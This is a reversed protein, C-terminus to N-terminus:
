QVLIRCIRLHIDLATPRLSGSVATYVPPRDREALSRYPTIVYDGDKVNAQKKQVKVQGSGAWTVVISRGQVVSVDGPDSGHRMMQEVFCQEVVNNQSRRVNTFLLVHKMSTIHFTLFHLSHQSRFLSLITQTVWPINYPSFNQRWGPYWTFYTMLYVCVLVLVQENLEDLAESFQSLLNVIM